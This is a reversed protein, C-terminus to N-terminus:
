TTDYGNLKERQQNFTLSFFGSTSNGQLRIFGSM